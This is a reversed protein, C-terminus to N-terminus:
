RVAALPRPTEPTPKPQYYDTHGEVHLHPLRRDLWGPLWWNGRGLLHMVAPVLLLRVLTADILIASGMGVGIVKIPLDPSPVFAAFVAVMIAAAATIVRATGALGSVISEANDNSRLWAERMRSVLFVEYDMSLGFLVAFTLVPVFAPLPTPSDIGILRGATGGELVLAVVGYAAGVSLLNMVAAKLAVAVSRFAVLLLLMSVTVVGGVLLPIRRSINDTSDIASATAGGVHVRIGPGVAGPVVHDRLDRVLAKTASSQPGSDPVVTLLLSRGDAGPVPPTVATVGPVAKLATPLAATADAPTGPTLEAVLVLPGNSGPGFGAAVTDYALRNSRGAPDNGADPFGFRVGLFPAALALLVVVGTVAGLVRHREVLRSWRLWGASVPSGGRAARRRPLPLRLREIHRGLYGLLAPFLTASAAIVVLVSLIASVAAGRMFSLGMAFLGLMSVVVTMGAVVVARGATDLAAVTAAEPELGEARWERFRTVLLLAYDIGVGIGLMAALSTSWDPVPMIAALVPLLTASVALGGLATLMPLGAAVVSGFTIVLIVAAAAIGIAESGIAGQEAQQVTMGGLHVRLGGDVTRALDLLRHTDAKPMDPAVAVDLHIQGLATRGDTSVKGRPGYPDDIGSVHPVEAMRALLDEVRDRTATDTVSGDASLVLSISEGGLGPFDRTLLQQAQKSDSGPATYDASYKAGLGASLGFAAGAALLWLLVTRGRNRFSWGAIRGLPGPRHPGSEGAATRRGDRLGQSM